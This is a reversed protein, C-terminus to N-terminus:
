VKEKIIKRLDKIEEEKNILEKAWLAKLKTAFRINHLKHEESIENLYSELYEIDNNVFDRFEKTGSMYFQLWNVMKDVIEQCKKARPPVRM